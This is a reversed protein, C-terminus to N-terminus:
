RQDARDPLRSSRGSGRPHLHHRALVRERERADLHGRPCRHDLERVKALTAKAADQNQYYHIAIKAGGSALKLAIGRGIGRSSGTILAHKGDQM